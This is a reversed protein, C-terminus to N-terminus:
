CDLLKLTKRCTAKQSLLTSNKWSKVFGSMQQCSQQCKVPECPGPVLLTNDDLNPSCTDFDPVQHWGMFSREGRMTELYHIEESLEQDLEEDRHTDRDSLEGQDEGTGAPSGPESLQDDESNSYASM